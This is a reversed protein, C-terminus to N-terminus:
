DAAGSYFVHWSTDVAFYIQLDACDADGRFTYGLEYGGHKSIEVSGLEFLSDMTEPNDFRGADTMLDGHKILESKYSNWEKFQALRIADQLTPFKEFLKELRLKHEENPGEIGTRIIITIPKPCIPTPRDPASWFEYTAGHINTGSTLTIKGFYEHDREIKDTNIAQKLWSLFSM